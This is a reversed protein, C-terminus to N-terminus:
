FLFIYLVLLLLAFISISRKIIKDQWKKNKICESYKMRTFSVSSYLPVWKDPFIDNLLNDLYKRAIFLKSNVLDRMEKYNYVALDCIAVADPQRNESFESIALDFHNSHKTLLEDFILCDEFGANMGQGYFPVMAHAADGMLMAKGFYYPRCKVTVLPSAKNQFYDTILKDKGILKVADPFYNNFFDLLKTPTSLEAFRGFPMFLTVTYTCDQNPLAILMFTKRPWIHLYNVEMAFEEHENPPITLEMYGHSIYEQSYDFLPQKLMSRRVASYAGDCGIIWDANSSVSNNPVSFIMEGKDLDLSTLKHQFHINVNPHAEAATLLVENLHRRGVSFICQNNKGYFIPKRRGDKDHIMRGFMPIAHREIIEEELGVAKLASRGRVSLALNISRGTVHELTRIDKRQEYLDVKIGRNGLFCSALSGVLGGGIIAVSKNEMM